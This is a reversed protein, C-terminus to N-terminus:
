DHFLENAPRPNFVAKFTDDCHDLYADHGKPPTPDQVYEIFRAADDGELEEALDLVYPM